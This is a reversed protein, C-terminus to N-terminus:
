YSSDVWRESANATFNPSIGKMSTVVGGWNGFFHFYNNSKQKYNSIIKSNAKTLRIKRTPKQKSLCGQKLPINKKSKNERKRQHNKSFTVNNIFAPTINLTSSKINKEETGIDLSSHDEEPTVSTL